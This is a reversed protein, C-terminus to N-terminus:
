LRKFFFADEGRRLRGRFSMGKRQFTLVQGSIRVERSVEDGLWTVVITRGELRKTYFMGGMGVGCNQDLGKVEAESLLRNHTQAEDPAVELRGFTPEYVGHGPFHYMYGFCRETGQDIYTMLSGRNLIEPTQKKTKM